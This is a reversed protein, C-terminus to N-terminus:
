PRVQNTELDILLIDSDETLRDFVIRKGDPTIDFTRMVASSSLQTLRRSRLTNLDLLWFDQEAMTNGLMYVLGTGDPLFRARTGDRQVKIEPLQMPTGDPHVAMLPALTFVQPGCYVISDGRPSWVPDLFPGTAIRVPAGGDAPLKFLGLGNRDTGAVVIWKGDPSWSAAGRADVENSLPRIGTGDAMMVHMQQKGDRKLAFAVGSGDASVAAPSQLAGESGKWIELAKGDRYSWLGDAGDRSSLYFLAGGGFRPARSRTTPLQFAAVDQEGALRSTIPVSWLNAQANVVSAALRRGDATGALATYQELGSSVRDLTRTETDFAWLWPGAGDKNPAVFLVTRENIPIPSAIDTNLHTLQEPEGGEPLIRWLDMERTAPRGRVFYIWRGDRSWVLYHNHLGPENQLIQHQIAGNHDAVFTPDGPQWTHYTLRAGDPSWAVEAAHEDLFNHPAGGMLPWLMLRRSQTGGSWVESGDGSFGVARLPGRMDGMRGQTLNALSTGNSQILWIDFTGSRNSIFAAFKGDPSIAPNSKTGEFNTLRIFRANSLPNQVTPRARNAVIWALLGAVLLAVLTRPLWGYRQPAVVASTTARAGSSDTDRKLRKLDTRVDSAHQYRLDRDKELVKDIIETLKSPLGPNLRAPPVLAGDLIAKFILGPSEGRFPLQGTAMEYLVVGYSFLDTRADLEKGQVQEPSMYAVTGLTSGPGTLHDQDIEQTALTPEDGTARKSPSIKALGFDLIKAHGRETIFINTPKIDRHIIGRSHAADLADAVEIAVGLLHELEMPRGTITHKLTKGELCEMVIFHRGDHEGTEYITCINPHNLASTAKAERRFREMAQPDHALEESLFKLAVFRELRTDEARYVAAMGGGGLKELIRYHSVTQGILVGSDAV